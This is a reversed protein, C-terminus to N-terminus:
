AVRWVGVVSRVAVLCMVMVGFLVVMAWFADVSLMGFVYRKHRFAERALSQKGSQWRRMAGDAHLRAIQRDVLKASSLVIPVGTGPHTSAGVFFLNGFDDHRTGPRMYVVQLLDHSLGLASGEWLGFREKWVEPTNVLETEIWKEMGECAPVLRGLMELVAARARRELAKWDQKGGARALQERTTALHGVPVLVTVTEKGEPAATPDVKSPCHVYFSPVDPLGHRKFIADFSERYDDSLVVTHADLGELKKGVGWYFSITSCTQRLQAVHRAYRTPPLLWNYSTVLDANCVVVDAPLTRGDVLSVGTALGTIPSVDIRSAAVGYEFKAGHSKAISVLADVLTHFGGIPYYIGEAIETYSLLSYTGPAEFPSNGMYMCQFTFAQRLRENGFWRSARAWLSELVHLRLGLVLNKLTFFEWWHEYNRDLVMEVSTDYHVKAERMFGQLGDFSGPEFRELEARLVDRDTSLTLHQGDQFLIRSNPECKVLRIHASLPEGLDSFTQEFVKPMLWLSPGQDFRYGDKRLTSCRGGPFTNQEVVTVRAGRKALRAALAVGGLGAGVIVVDLDM